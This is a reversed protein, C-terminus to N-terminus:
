SKFFSHPLIAGKIAPGVLKTGPSAADCDGQFVSSVGM